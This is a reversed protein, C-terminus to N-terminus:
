ERHPLTRFLLSLVPDLVSLALVTLCLPGVLGFDPLGVLTLLAPAYWWVLAALGLAVASCGMRRWIM